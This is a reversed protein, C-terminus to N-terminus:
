AGTTKIAAKEFADKEAQKALKKDEAKREKILRTNYEEDNELRYVHLIIDFEGDYGYHEVTLKHDVIGEKLHMEKLLAVKKTVNGLHTTLTTGNEVNLYETVDIKYDLVKKREEAM